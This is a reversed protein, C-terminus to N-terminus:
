GQSTTPYEWKYGYATGNRKISNIISLRAQKRTKGFELALWDAADVTCDFRRGTTVCLVPRVLGRERRARSVGASNKALVEPRNNQESRTAKMREIVDPSSYHKALSQLRKERAEKTWTTSAIAARHEKSLPVGKRSASMKMRTEQTHKAGAFGEGGLTYNSLEVGCAKLGGILFIEHWHAEDEAVEGLVIEVSLGCKSVINRWHKNRDHRSYARNAKGKGVYFIANNDKRRHVYVYFQTSHNTSM